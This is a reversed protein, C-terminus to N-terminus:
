RGEHIFEPKVLMVSLGWPLTTLAVCKNHLFDSSPGSNLGPKAM